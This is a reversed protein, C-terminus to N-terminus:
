LSDSSRPSERGVPALSGRGVQSHRLRSVSVRESARGGARGGAWGGARGVWESM